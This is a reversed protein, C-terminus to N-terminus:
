NEGRVDFSEETDLLLIIAEPYIRKFNLAIQATYTSKSSGEGGWMYVFGPHFIGGGYFLDLFADGTFIKPREENLAKVDVSSIKSVEKILSNLDLMNSKAM